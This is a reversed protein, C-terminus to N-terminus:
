DVGLHTGGLKIASSHAPIAVTIADFTNYELDEIYV